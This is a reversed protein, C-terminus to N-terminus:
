HPKGYNTQRSDIAQLYPNKKLEEGITTTDGHGPYIKVQPSLRSLKELSDMLKEESGGPLDWRGVSGKFLTDGTFATEGALLCIGGPTHGPTHIVKFEVTGSKIISNDELIVDAVPFKKDEGFFASGNLASDRLFEKDERHIYVPIGYLKKLEANAEIHDYHGHTIIIGVPVLSLDRIRDIILEADGGPDIIFTNNSSGETVLYCNAGLIGVVITEIKIKNETM